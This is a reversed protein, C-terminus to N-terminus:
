GDPKLSMSIDGILNGQYLLDDSKCVYDWYSHVRGSFFYENDLGCVDLVLIM